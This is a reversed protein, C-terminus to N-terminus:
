KKFEFQLDKVPELHRNYFQVRYRNTLNDVIAFTGGIYTYKGRPQSISGPNLFLCGDDYDVMLQHTHGFAVIDAGTQKALLKLPTLTFNVQYLHGHTVTIHCDDIQKEVVKPYNLGWDTNGIVAHYNTMGQDDPNLNSDGCHFMAVVNSSFQKRIESLIQSDGHNDSVFLIKM